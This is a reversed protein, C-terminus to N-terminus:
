ASSRKELEALVESYGQALASAERELSDIKEQMEDRMKHVILMLDDASVQGKEDAFQILAQAIRENPWLARNTVSIGTM